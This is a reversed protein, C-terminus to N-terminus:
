DNAGKSRHGSKFNKATQWFEVDGPMPVSKLLGTQKLDDVFTQVDARAVEPAVEFNRILWAALEEASLRQELLDWLQAGPGNFTYVAEMDGVGSCIPVVLTEGAIVRSVTAPNRVFFVRQTPSATTAM